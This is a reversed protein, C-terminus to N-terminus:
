RREVCRPIGSYGM